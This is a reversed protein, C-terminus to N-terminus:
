ETSKKQVSALAVEAPVWWAAGGGAHRLVGVEVGFRGWGRGFHGFLMNTGQRFGVSSMLRVSGNSWGNHWGM